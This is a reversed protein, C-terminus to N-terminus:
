KVQGPRCDDLMSGIRAAAIAVVLLDVEGEIEALSRYCRIGNITELTPHVPYIAGGYGHKQLFTLPLSGLKGPDSSAGAIAISSPRLLARISTRTTESPDDVPFSPPQM